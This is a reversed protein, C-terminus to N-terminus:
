DTRITGNRQAQTQGKMQLEIRKKSTQITGNLDNSSKINANPWGELESKFFMQLLVTSKKWVPNFKKRADVNPDLKVAIPIKKRLLPNCL